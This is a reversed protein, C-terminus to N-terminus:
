RRRETDSFAAGGDGVFRATRAGVVGDVAMGSGGGGIGTM